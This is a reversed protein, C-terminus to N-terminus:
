LMMLSTWSTPSPAGASYPPKVPTTKLLTVWDPPLLTLPSNSVSYVFSESVEELEFMGPKIGVMLFDVSEVRWSPPGSALSLSQYKREPWYRAFSEVFPPGMPVSRSGRLKPLSVQCAEWLLETSDQSSHSLYWIVPRPPLAVTGSSAVTLSSAGSNTQFKESWVTSESFVM